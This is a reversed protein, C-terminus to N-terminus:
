KLKGGTFNFYHNISNALLGSEAIATILLFCPLERTRKNRM